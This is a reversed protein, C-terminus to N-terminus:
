PGWVLYRPELGITIEQASTQMGGFPDYIAAPTGPVLTIQHYEGDLSWLVWVQHNWRQFKYGMVGTPNIIDSEGLPYASSPAGLIERAFRYAYYAPKPNLNRYLLGSDQWGLVSYWLNAHLGEAIAASYFQVLFNVKTTEFDPDDDCIGCLIAGETNMLFKEGVNFAALTQKIFRAKATVGPGGDNWAAGWNPNGFRNIQNFYYDYAHFSIGDFYNGGDNNGNRHLIGELFRPHSSNCAGPLDPNCMLLLGGVIVNANPNAAKAAPYIFKLMEGYYGGGYFEDHPDGWCGYGSDPSPLVSIEVDPENWIEYYSVHYPHQSYRAVVEFMFSAFNTLKSPRIPGCSYGITEDAQAWDPTGRIILIVELGAAAANVLQQDLFAVNGWNLQGEVPEVDSWLLGSNRTWTSGAQSIKALGARNTLPDTTIGFATKLPYHGLITPLYLTSTTSASVSFSPNFKLFPDFNGPVALLIIAIAIIRGLIEPQWCKKRLSEIRELVIKL